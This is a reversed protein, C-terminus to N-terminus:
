RLNFVETLDNFALHAALQDRQKMWKPLYAPEAIHGEDVLPHLTEVDETTLKGTFLVDMDHLAGAHLAKKFFAEIEILGRLYVNDKFFIIGGKPTGGRFIRM